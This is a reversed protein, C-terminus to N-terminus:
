FLADYDVNIQLFTEIGLSMQYQFLFRVEENSLGEWPLQGYTYCEWMSVGFSFVDSAATFCYDNIAEPSMWAVPLKFRDRTTSTNWHCCGLDSLKVKIFLFSNNSNTSYVFSNVLSQKFLLFNRCSLNQHILAKKELFSM